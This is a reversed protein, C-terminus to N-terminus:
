LFGGARKQGAIRADIGDFAGQLHANGQGWQDSPTLAQLKGEEMVTATQRIGQGDGDRGFVAGCVFLQDRRDMAGEARDVDAHVDFFGGGFFEGGGKQQVHLCARCRFRNDARIRIGYVIQGADLRAAVRDLNVQLSGGGAQQGFGFAIGERCGFRSREDEVCAVTGDGCGIGDSQTLAQLERQGHVVPAGAGQTWTPVQAAQRAQQLRETRFCLDRHDAFHISWGDDIAGHRVQDALGQLVPQHLGAQALLVNSGGLHCKGFPSGVHADAGQASNVPQRGVTGRHHQDGTAACLARIGALTRSGFQVQPGDLGNGGTRTTLAEEDHGGVVDGM